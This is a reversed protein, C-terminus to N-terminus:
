INGFVFDKAIGCSERLLNNPLYRPSSMGAIGCVNKYGYHKALAVGRFVHFNSTVIGVSANEKDLLKASFEINEATNTSKEETLIRDPDIGNEVMYQKMIVAEPAPENYGQGGSVIAKTDPNNEMYEIAAKLRWATVVAPGSEKVQSGLVIIYDLEPEGKASFQSFIMGQTVAEFLIGLVLCVVCVAKVPKNVKKWVHKYAMFSLVALVAAIVFWILFFYTGSNVMFVVIGYMGSLVSAAAFFLYSYNKKKNNEKKNNDKKNNEKKNLNKKDSKV